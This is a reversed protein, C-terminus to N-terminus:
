LMISFLRRVVEDLSMAFFVMPVFPAAAALFLGFLNRRTVPVMRMGAVSAYAGGAYDALASPSASDLMSGKSGREWIRDFDSAVRHGLLGYKDLAHRKARALPVAMVLLPALLLLSLGLVYGAVLYRLGFLTEDSYLIQNICYGSVVFGGAVALVAFRLQAQGLFALGGVQDPHAPRLQMHMRSFRWLLWTWLLFRWLWLLTVFRFLPASVTEVWLGAASASGGAVHWSDMTAYAREVLDPALMRWLLPLVALVLCALEPLFSDRARGAAAVVAAFRGRDRTAVVGSRFLQCMAARLRADAGTAALILLPLAALFRSMVFWDGLLPMAVRGALLTGDRGCLVLLPVFSITVLLVAVFRPLHVDPLRRSVARVFRYTPGGRMLSFDDIAM